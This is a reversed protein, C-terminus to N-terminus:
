LLQQVRAAIEGRLLDDAADLILDTGKGFTVGLPVVNGEHDGAHFLFDFHLRDLNQPCELPANPRRATV